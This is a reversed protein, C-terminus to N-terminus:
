AHRAAMWVRAEDVAHVLGRRLAQLTPIDATGTWEDMFVKKYELTLVCADDGFREHLWEPFDGGDPYRINERVDPARGLVPVAALRRTMAEILGAYVPKSLTTVGLDIDPNQHQPAAPQEAGARRHNYSHIDLVLVAGHEEILGRCTAELLDRFRDHIAQSRARESAPVDPSWVRLGWTKAPDATFCLDRSRNVDCEFRSTNVRLFSDATTIFYDTLPDEERMRQHDDILLWPRLSARIDHGGHVATALVPGDAVVLNWNRTQATPIRPAM